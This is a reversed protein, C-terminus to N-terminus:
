SAPLVVTDLTKIATIFEQMIVPSAAVNDPHLLMVVDRTAAESLLWQIPFQKTNRWHPELWFASPFCLLGDHQIPKLDPDELNGFFVKMGAQRGWPLYREPEYPAFHHRGLCLRGSGHKSFSTVPRGLEQQLSRVEERFTEASRSNELHLGFQHGGEQMLECIESTPYTCKRFFVYSSKGNANLINLITKLENLYGLWTIRPLFYDSGIRSAIHRVIGQKGYPRDVDIRVILAM